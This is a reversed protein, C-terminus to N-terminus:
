SARHPHNDYSEGDTQRNPVISRRDDPKTTRSGDSRDARENTGRPRVEESVEAPQLHDLLERLGELAGWAVLPRDSKTM